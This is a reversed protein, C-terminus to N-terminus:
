ISSSIINRQRESPGEVHRLQKPHISSHCAIFFTNDLDLVHKNTLAYKEYMFESLASTKDFFCPPVNICHMLPDLLSPIPSAQPTPGPSTTLLGSKQLKQKREREDGGERTEEKEGDKKQEVTEIISNILLEQKM